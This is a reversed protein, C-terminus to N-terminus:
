RVVKSEGIKLLDDTEDIHQGVERNFLILSNHKSAKVLIDLLNHYADFLEGYKRRLLYLELLTPNTYNITEGEPLHNIDPIDHSFDYQLIDGIQRIFSYKLKSHKFKQYIINRSLNLKRAMTAIPYGSERIVREIIKGHHPVNGDKIKGKEM